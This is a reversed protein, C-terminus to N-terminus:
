EFISLKTKLRTMRKQKKNRKSYKKTMIEKNILEWCKCKKSIFPPFLDIVGFIGKYYKIYYDYRECLYWFSIYPIWFIHRLDSHIYINSWQNIADLTNIDNEIDKIGRAIPDNNIETINKRLATFFASIPINSKDPREWADFSSRLWVEIFQRIGAIAMNSPNHGCADLPTGEYLIHKLEMLMCIQPRKCNKCLRPGHIERGYRKSAYFKAYLTLLYGISSYADEFLNGLRPFLPPYMDLELESKHNKCQDLIKCMYIYFSIFHCKYFSEEYIDNNLCTTQIIQHQCAHFINDSNYDGESVNKIKGDGILQLLEQFLQELLARKEAMDKVADAVDKASARNERLSVVEYLLETILQWCKEFSECTRQYAMEKSQETKSHRADSEESVCDNYNDSIVVM